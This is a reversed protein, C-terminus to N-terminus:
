QIPPPPTPTQKRAKIAIQVANVVFAWGCIILWHKTLWPWGLSNIQTSGILSGGALIGLLAQSYGLVSKVKANWHPGFLWDLLRTIAGKQETDDAM